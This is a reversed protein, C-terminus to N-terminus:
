SKSVSSKWTPFLTRPSRKQSARVTQVMEKLGVSGVIERMNGELVQTVLTILESQRMGLLSEAAKELLTPDSSIKINAVGDVTVNIFESTPVAESTKVDVQMVRLSLKDVRELFPVHWGSRGILIRKKRPGSIIFAMDPPAKLYGSAFFIIFVLAIAGIIYYLVSPM